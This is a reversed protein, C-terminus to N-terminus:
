KSLYVTPDIEAILQGAKVNSGIDVHLKKLQGSVQTGVDVYDRPQLIGTATVTDEFDGRRVPAVAFRDAGAARATLAHAGYVAAGALAVLTAIAAARAAWRRPLLHRAHDLLHKTMDTDRMAQRSKGDTMTVPLLHLFHPPISS